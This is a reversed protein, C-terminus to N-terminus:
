IPDLVFYFRQDPMVPYGKPYIWFNVGDRFDGTSTIHEYDEARFHITPHLREVVRTALAADRDDIIDVVEHEIRRQHRWIM